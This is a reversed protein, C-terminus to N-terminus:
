PEHTRAIYGVQHKYAEWLRNDSYHEVKYGAKRYMTRVDDYYILLNGYQVLNYDPERPFEKMYRKIENLSEEKTEMLEMLQQEIDKLVANTKTNRGCSPCKLWFTDSMVIWGELQLSWEADHTQSESSHSELYLDILQRSEADHTLRQCFRFGFYFFLGSVMM